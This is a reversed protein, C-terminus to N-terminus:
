ECGDDSGGPPIATSEFEQDLQQTIRELLVPLEIMAAEVVRWEHNSRVTELSECLDAFSLAGVTRATAKLKHGLRGLEASNRDAQASKMDSLTENALEVFRYSFKRMAAVDNQFLRRLVAIDIPDAEIM